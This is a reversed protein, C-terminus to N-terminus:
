KTINRVTKTQLVMRVKRRKKERRQEQIATTEREVKPASSKSRPVREPSPTPTRRKVGRSSVVSSTNSGSMNDDTDGCHWPVPANLVERLIKFVVPDGGKDPHHKRSLRKVEQKRPTMTIKALAKARQRMTAETDADADIWSPLTKVIQGSIKHRYSIAGDDTEYIVDYDERKPMTEVVDL